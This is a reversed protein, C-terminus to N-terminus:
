PNALSGPMRYCHARLEAQHAAVLEGFEDEGM